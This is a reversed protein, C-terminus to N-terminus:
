VPISCGELLVTLDAAPLCQICTLSRRARLVHESFSQDRVPDQKTSTLSGASHWLRTPWCVSASLPISCSELLVTLDAAPLCQICTLSRRARHVHESFSHDRVPDHKTSTLSGASHWLRTPWCVSASLPVSCSELLVTLDAAPLCQICTCAVQPGLPCARQLQSVHGISMSASATIAFQNWGAEPVIQEVADAHTQIGVDSDVQLM